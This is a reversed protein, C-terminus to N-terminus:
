RTENEKTPPRTDFADFLDEFVPHVQITGVRGYLDQILCQGNELERLKRQNGEDEKDVGFFELTKKIENIDRSRFAFKVGINNKLKEDTLDDANQTVFYVGANMARGARVLKNSLTKGQAVQLFSWAEDLDVIKFVSRDSHIFDLAFTSIVILMAVSLLEMTTYEEFRTEADPLVLDAVQIINLQKELSISNKVTGDSFLLHAFDYDTFSEIHDAIPGALPNPDSRLEHIVLMLGREEQQSVARIARRLVPFKEGDRSSIGTLFTLIDIALSESDKKKKM